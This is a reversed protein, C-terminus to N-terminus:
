RPVHHGADSHLSREHADGAVVAGVPEVRQDRLLGELNANAVFCDGSLVVSFEARVEPVVVDEM